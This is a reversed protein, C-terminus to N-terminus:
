EIKINKLIKKARKHAELLEDDTPKILPTGFLQQFANFEKRLKNALRKKQPTM